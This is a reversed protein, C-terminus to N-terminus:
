LGDRIAEGAIRSPTAWHNVDPDCIGDIKDTGLISVHVIIRTSRENPPEHLKLLRTIRPVHQLRGRQM